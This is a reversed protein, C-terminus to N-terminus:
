QDAAGGPGGTTLASHLWGKAVAWERKITAPSLGLVEATQEITMGGFFRLEVMRAQDPDRAALRGLAQDVALVEAAVPDVMADPGEPELPLKTVGGGRKLAERGRAHDVLIRRMLRAAVAFFQTRNEWTASRQDVLQLFLEHVLATPQLTHDSREHRLQRGAIRRLEPYILPVLRDLASRDGRSWQALVETVAASGSGEPADAV